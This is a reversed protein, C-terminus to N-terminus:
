NTAAAGSALRVAAGSGVIKASMGEMRFFRMWDQEAKTTLIMLEVRRDHEGTADSGRAPVKDAMGIVELVQRDDLGGDELTQRVRLARRSSLNWNNNFVSSDTYQASDTHGAIVVKNKVQTLVPVLSLFLTAVQPELVDSSRVFMGHDDSDHVIIRLGDQTMITELNKDLGLAKAQAQIAAALAQQQALSDASSSAYPSVDDGGKDRDKSGEAAHPAYPAIQPTKSNQEFIGAGGDIVPSGSVQAAIKMREEQTSASMVWLVMFLVMLALMFDAFAVKWAGGHHEDHHKSGRKIIAPSHHADDKKM